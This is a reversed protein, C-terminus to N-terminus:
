ELIAAIERLLGNPLNTHTLSGSGRYVGFVLSFTREPQDGALYPRQTPDECELPSLWTITQRSAFSHQIVNLCYPTAGESLDWTVLAEFQEPMSPIPGTWDVAAIAWIRGSADNPVEIPPQTGLQVAKDYVDNKGHTLAIRELCNQWSKASSNASTIARAAVEPGRSLGVSDIAWLVIDQPFLNQGEFNDTNNSFIAYLGNPQKVPYAM